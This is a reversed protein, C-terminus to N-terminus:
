VFDACIGSAFKADMYTACIGNYAKNNLLKRIIYTKDFQISNNFFFAFIALGYILM